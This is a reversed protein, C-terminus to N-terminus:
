SGMGESGTHRHTVSSPQRFSSVNIINANCGTLLEQSGFSIQTQKTPQALLPYPFALLPSFLFFSSNLSRSPVTHKTNQWERDDATSSKHKNRSGNWNKLSVLAHSESEACSTAKHTKTESSGEVKCRIYRNKKKLTFPTRKTNNRQLAELPCKANNTEKKQEDDDVSERARGVKVMAGFLTQQATIM